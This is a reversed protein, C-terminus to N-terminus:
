LYKNRYNKARVPNSMIEYFTFIISKQSLKKSVLKLHSQSFHLFSGTSNSNKRSTKKEKMWPYEPVTDCNDIPTTSYGPHGLKGPSEPEVHTLFEAMSPQSNIFGSETPMWYSSDAHQKEPTLKSTVAAVSPALNPICQIAQVAAGGGVSSTESKIQSGGLVPSELGNCVEQM